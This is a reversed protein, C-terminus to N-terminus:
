EKKPVPTMINFNPDVRDQTWLFLQWKCIDGEVIISSSDPKNNTTALEYLTEKSMTVTVVADKALENNLYRFIGRKVETSAVEDRDPIIFNIKYDFDGAKLGDIRISMLYLVNELPIANLVEDTIVSRKIPIIGFRLEQAGMLYENRWPGSEAIYGLQELADACLLKADRNNPNAYIVQKTVEAVWQYEGYEFSKKAKELVSDEGGMYEVYKKASEEPFLKNLDVPNGNYWGIYKQYVAKSNHVVTGYFSSDYWEDSLTEPFKVMRGVDDITYGKNILRLTQDNIYQYLDRQKEMYEICYKNGFRPWTHVGFVSTLNDGWLNIAKQIDSAWAVPDRVEAGRLTYINHLTASCNEAICLSKESPIYMDMESPAETDETLLFQMTVGDIVKEIYEENGIPSIENVDNTLTVTGGSVYKGIGCDIQGKKDRPLLEGYMYLGRRTMAVGANVNEEIVADMFGRPAYIKINETTNSNLIGLIGGYHDVHSHSFIVASIPINGFHENVLKIAAEATEKSTLCDIVIWGTNGRVLSINALDFGRIQYIRDTIRFIGSNLNLKGQEWLKPNVTYPIKNELLFAYRRLDWVPILSDEKKIVPLPVDVVVNKKALEEEIKLKNLDINIYIEKNIMKTKYTAKKRRASINEKNNKSNM